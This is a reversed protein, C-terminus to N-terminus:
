GISSAAAENTVVLSDAAWTCEFLSSGSLGAYGRRAGREGEHIMCVTLTASPSQPPQFPNSPHCTQHCKEAAGGRLQFRRPGGPARPPPSPPAVHAPPLPSSFMGGQQSITAEKGAPRAQAADQASGPVGGAVPPRRARLPYCAFRTCRESGKLPGAGGLEGRGPGSPAGVRADQLRDRRPRPPVDEVGPFGGGGGGRRKARVIQAERPVPKESYRPTSWARRKASPARDGQGGGAGTADEGLCSLGRRAVPSAKM